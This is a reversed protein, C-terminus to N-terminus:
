NLLYSSSAGVFQRKGTGIIIISREICAFMFEAFHGMWSLFGHLNTEGTRVIREKVCVQVRWIVTCVASSQVPDEHVTVRLVHNPLLHNRADRISSSRVIVIIIKQGSTLKNFLKKVWNVVGGSRSM